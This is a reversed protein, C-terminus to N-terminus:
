AGDHATPVLSELAAKLFPSHTSQVREKIWQKLDEDSLSTFATLHRERARVLREDDDAIRIPWNYPSLAVAMAIEILAERPKAEMKRLLQAAFKRRNMWELADEYWETVTSYESRLAVIVLFVAVLALCLIVIDTRM